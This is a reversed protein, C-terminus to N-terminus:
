GEQKLEFRVLLIEADGETFGLQQLRILADRRTVLGADYADLVQGASLLQFRLALLLTTDQESYGLALLRARAAAETLIGRLLAATVDAPSLVRRQFSLLLDAMETPFGLEVLLERARQLTLLARSFADLIQGSTLRLQRLDVLVQADDEAYGQDVLRRLAVGRDLIGRALADIIQAPTLAKREARLLLDIARDEYRLERLAERTEPEDLAGERYAALIETKTLKREERLALDDALVMLEIEADTFKAQRLFTRLTGEDIEGTRYLRRAQDGVEDLRTFIRRLKVAEVVLAGRAEGYGQRRAWRQLVDDGVRGARWLLEVDGTSFDRQRLNMLLEAHRQDIGEDRLMELAAGDTVLQQQWAEIVQTTSLRAPTYTRNFYVELFPGLSRRWLDRMATRGITQLGFGQAVANSLDALWQLQGLSVLELFSKDWWDDLAFAASIGILDELHEKARDPTLTSPPTVANFITQGPGRALSRGMALLSGSRGLRAADQPTIEVGSVEQMLQVIVAAMTPGFSESARLFQKALFGAVEPTIRVATYAVWVGAHVFLGALVIRTQVKSLLTGLLGGAILIVIFWLAVPM